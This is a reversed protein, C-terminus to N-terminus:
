VDSRYATLKLEIAKARVASEPRGLAHAIVPTPVRSTWLQELKHIAELRWSADANLTVNQRM